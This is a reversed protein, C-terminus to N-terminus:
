RSLANEEDEIFHLVQKKLEISRNVRELDYM